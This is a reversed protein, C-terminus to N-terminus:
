LFPRNLGQLASKLGRAHLEGVTFLGADAEGLGSRRVGPLGDPSRRSGFFCTSAFGRFRRLLFSLADGRKIKLGIRVISNVPFWSKLSVFGFRASM